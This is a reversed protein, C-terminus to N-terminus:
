TPFTGVWGRWDVFWIMFRTTAKYKAVDTDFDFTDDFEVPRRVVLRADNYRANDILFWSKLSQKYHSVVIKPKPMRRKIANDQNEATFPEKDSGFIQYARHLDGSNNGILITDPFWKMPDGNEDKTQVVLDLLATIGTVSLGIDTTPRNAITTTSNIPVHATSILPLNDIGNFTAGTAADDLFASAKYEYTLRAAHGLWKSAQNAKQYQDDEVTKRTLMFGLAFEQDVGVVKPGIKPDEYTVPEGDGRVLLRTLGTLITASMEPVHMTDTKLFDPYEPEWEQYADRFDERLGPRFLLNFNGQTIV